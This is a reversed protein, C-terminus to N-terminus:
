FLPSETWEKLRHVKLGYHNLKKNFNTGYKEDFEKSITDFHNETEEIKREAKELNKPSFDTKIETTKLNHIRDAFKASLTNKIVEELENEGLSCWLKEATERTYKEFAELNKIHWFYEDNRTEKYAENDYLKFYKEILKEWNPPLKQTLKQIKEKSSLPTHRGKKREKQIQKYIKLYKTKIRNNGNLLWSKELKEKKEYNEKDDKLIYDLPSKKSILFVGLAIKEWFLFKISRFDMDTDEIIDHLLAILIEDFSVGKKERLLILATERLHELYRDWDNRYVEQFKWKGLAYAFKLKLLGQEAEEDSVRGKFFVDYCEKIILEISRQPSLEIDKKNNPFINLIQLNFQNYIDWFPPIDSAKAKSKYKAKYTNQSEEEKELIEEWFIVKLTHELDSKKQENIKKRKERIYDGSTRQNKDDKEDKKFLNQIGWILLTVLNNLGKAWKEHNESNNLFDEIIWLFNRFEERYDDGYIKEYFLEGLSYIVNFEQMKYRHEQPVQKKSSIIQGDKWFLKNYIDVRWFEIERKPTLFNWILNYSRLFDWFRNWNM